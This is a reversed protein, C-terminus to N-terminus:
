VDSSNYFDGHVAMSIEDAGLRSIDMYNGSNRYHNKVIDSAVGDFWRFTFHYFEQAHIGNGDRPDLTMSRGFEAYEYPMLHAPPTVPIVQPRM